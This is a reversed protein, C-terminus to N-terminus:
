LYHSSHYTKPLLSICKMPWPFFDNLEHTLTYCGSFWYIKRWMVLFRHGLGAIYCVNMNFYQCLTLFFDFYILITSFLTNQIMWHIKLCWENMQVVYYSLCPLPSWTCRVSSFFIGQLLYIHSVLIVSLQNNALVWDPRMRYCWAAM